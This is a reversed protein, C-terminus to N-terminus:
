ARIRADLACVSPTDLPTQAAHTLTNTFLHLGVHAIVEVIEAPGLGAERLAVFLEDGVQGRSAVLQRVFDLIMGRRPDSAEGHLNRELEEDSLGIARGRAAHASACYDCGNAGAVAVAIQERLAADLVGDALAARQARYARLAAPSHALIRLLNPAGEGSALAEGRLRRPEPSAPADALLPIREM